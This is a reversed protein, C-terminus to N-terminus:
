QWLLAERLSNFNYESRKFAAHAEKVVMFSNRVSESVKRDAPIKKLEKELNSLNPIALLGRNSCNVVPLTFANIYDTMWKSSFDLNSSSFVIKGTYDIATLHSMYYRKPKPNDWAYYNGDPEWAYDYGVLFYTEYGGWNSNQQMNCETWFVLMANSINSSAPIMRYRDKFIPMFHRESEISDQNLYFYRPGKWMTTWVPNGYPTSILCVGETDRRRTEIYKYPISADATMVFNPKIGRDMLPLFAKDCCIIDIRDRYKKLTDVNEELSPGMGVLVCYKGIGSHELEATDRRTLKANEKANPIWTKEGQSKWVTLSQSRIEEPKLRPSAM